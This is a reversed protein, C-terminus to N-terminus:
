EDGVTVFLQKIIQKGYKKFTVEVCVYDIDGDINAVINADVNNLESTDIVKINEVSKVLIGDNKIISKKIIDFHYEDDNSFVIREGINDVSISSKASNVINYQLKDFQENIYINAKEDLAKYNMNTSMAIAFVTFVFFLSVYIVISTLSIGSKLKKM